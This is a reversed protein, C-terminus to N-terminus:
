LRDRCACEKNAYDFCSQLIFLVFILLQRLCVCVISESFLEITVVIEALIPFCNLDIKIKNEILNNSDDVEKGCSLCNM